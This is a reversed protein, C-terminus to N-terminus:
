IRFKKTAANPDPGNPNIGRVKFTYRGPKLKKYRKPSSCPTFSAASKKGKKKGKKKRALSCEFGTVYGAASFEFKAKRKKKNIKKSVATGYPPNLTTVANLTLRAYDGSWTCASDDISSTVAVARGKSAVAEQGNNWLAVRTAGPALTPDTNCDASTLSSVGAMLPSSADFTGLTVNNNVNTGPIYPSYGGSQWRGGLSFSPTSHMTYAYEVVVGGHDAYDALNNGIATGTGDVFADCDSHVVAMDYQDLQAVSPTGTSANFADVKAVGPQTAMQTQLTTDGTCGGDVANLFLVQWAGPSAAAPQAFLALLGAALLVAPIVLRVRRRTVAEV